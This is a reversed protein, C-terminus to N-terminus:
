EPQDTWFYLFIQEPEKEPDLYFAHLEFVVYGPSDDGAEPDSNPKSLRRYALLELRGDGNLDLFVSDIKGASSDQDADLAFWYDDRGFEWKKQGNLELRGIHSKNGYEDAPGPSFSIKWSQGDYDCQFTRGDGTRTPAPAPNWGGTLGFEFEPALIQGCDYYPAELRFGGTAEGEYMLRLAGTGTGGLARGALDYRTLLDGASVMPSECSVAGDILRTMLAENAEVTEFDLPRGDVKLGTWELNWHGEGDWGGILEQRLIVPRFDRYLWPDVNLVLCAMSWVNLDKRWDYFNNLIQAFRDPQWESLDYGLDGFIRLLEGGFAIRQDDTTEGYWQPEFLGTFKEIQAVDKRAAERSATLDFSTRRFGGQASAATLWEAGALPDGTARVELSSARRRWDGALSAVDANFAQSQGGFKNHEFLIVEYGPRVRLSALSDNPLDFNDWLDYKGPGPIKWAAGSFDDGTYAVAAFDDAQGDAAFAPALPSLMLILAFIVLRRTM